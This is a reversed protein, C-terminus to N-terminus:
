VEDPKLPVGKAVFVVSGDSFELSELTADPVCFCLKLVLSRLKILPSDVSCYGNDKLEAGGVCRRMKFSDASVNLSQAIKV